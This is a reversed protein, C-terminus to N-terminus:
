KIGHHLALEASLKVSPQVREKKPKPEKPEKTKKAATKKAAGSKTAGKTAGKTTGKSARGAKGKKVYATRPHDPYKGELKELDNVIVDCEPFTSCSYFTKGFRSRRARMHGPCDIAPCAPM